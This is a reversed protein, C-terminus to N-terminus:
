IKELITKIKRGQEVYNPITEKLHKRIHIEREQIWQFANTLEEGNRLEQVPLVYNQDTGFIDKAIGRAKVSYGVVLTPVETSYAAITSHTRAGVFIRCKSIIYKLQPATHDNVLIIRENYNFEKYIKQLITRDDNQKWVVHPILAIYMSTHNLIYEIMKRYNEYASGNCKENSIIMPSINVGIVDGNEFRKDLICKESKMYFAPDPNLIVNAGIEKLSQYTISERAVILNYSKLDELVKKKKIVEPEISCGWLVTKIGKKQYEKNLFAYFAQNEYCYNDGGASLAFDVKGKIKKISDVYPLGDMDTYNNKLKLKMYARILRAKSIKGNKADLVNCFKALGYIIDEDMEEIQTRNYYGARIDHTYIQQEDKHEKVCDCMVVDCDYEEAIQIMSQYMIPEIYDDSDVFICYEGTAVKLGSNRAAAVGANKKHIAKVRSDRKSYEDCIEGSSDPSGDDVLIIELNEYTQTIISDLCKKLVAEVKYVPVIVSIKKM